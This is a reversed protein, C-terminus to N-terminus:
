GMALGALMPIGGLILYMFLTWLGASNEIYKELKQRPNKIFLFAPITTAAFFFILLGKSIWGLAAAEIAWFALGFTISLLFVWLWAAQKSGLTKSFTLIGPEEHEPIRIKRGVELVMGNFFSVGLFILLTNHFGAESLKWDLGSSYLDVLPIIPMHTVMYWIPRDRLWEPIFFEVSMLLLYIICIAYLWWLPIQFLAIVVLQSAFLIWGLTKLEKLSVLGRPVPLYGRHAKDNDADKHEDFIRLLFFTTYVIYLGPLFDQWSIFSEVGRSLRSYSVASFTFATIILGNQFINFRELQYLWLRKLLPANNHEQPKKM